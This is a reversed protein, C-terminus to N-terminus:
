LDYILKDMAIIESANMPRGTEKIFDATISRKLEDVSQDQGPDLHCLTCLVAKHTDHKTTNQSELKTLRTSITM